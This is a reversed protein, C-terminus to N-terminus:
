VADIACVEVDVFALRVPTGSYGASMAEGQEKAGNYGRVGHGVV